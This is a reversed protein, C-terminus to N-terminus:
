IHRYIFVIAVIGLALAPLGALLVLYTLAPIAQSVLLAATIGILLDLLTLAFFWWWVTHGRKSAEILGAEKLDDSLAMLLLGMLTIILAKNGILVITAIAAMWYSTGDASWATLGGLVLCLVLNITAAVGAWHWKPDRDAFQKLGVAVIAMSLAEIFFVLASLWIGTDIGGLFNAALTIMLGTILLEIGKKGQTM